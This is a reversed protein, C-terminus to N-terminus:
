SQDVESSTGLASASKVELAERLEDGMSKLAALDAEFNSPSNLPQEIFSLLKGRFKVATDILHDSGARYAGLAILDKNQEYTVLLERMVRAHAQQEPKTIQLMSRSVSKEIDVAPYIGTDSMQRSLVIHGDLSARALDAIPDQLDDGEVLVTYIATISGTGLVGAREILTPILSFVSPTYGKSVPPEGASLSLERQAQAFRTLSDMLLLVKLGQARYYEAIATARWCGSIRMLPSTDAPTAVVVARKLGDEGLSEEIFEKVERGREGVLSVVVVDASSFRTIMGLLSSKGVGSGAFLGIRQGTGITLLSNIVRVGTDLPESIPSREMPNLPKGRLPRSQDLTLPRGDVPNGAGDLVRGLLGQGVLVRNSGEQLKVKAGPSMGATSQEPALLLHDGDFGVVEAALPELGNRDILCRAGIGAKLGSVELCEGTVRILKGSVDIGPEPMFDSLSAFREKVLSAYDQGLNHSM